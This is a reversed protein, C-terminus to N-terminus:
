ELQGECYQSNTPMGLSIVKMFADLYFLFQFFVQRMSTTLCTRNVEISLSISHANMSQRAAPFWIRSTSRDWKPIRITFRRFDNRILITIKILNGECCLKWWEKEMIGVHGNFHLRSKGNGVITRECRINSAATRDYHRASHLM